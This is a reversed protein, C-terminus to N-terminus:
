SFCSGGEGNSKRADTAGIKLSFLLPDQRPNRLPLEHSTQINGEVNQILLRSSSCISKSSLMARTLHLLNSFTWTTTLTSPYTKKEREKKKKTPPPFSPPLSLPSLTKTIAADKKNRNKKRREDDQKHTTIQKRHLKSKHAHSTDRPPQLPSPQRPTPTPMPLM